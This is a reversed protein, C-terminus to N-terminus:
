APAVPQGEDAASGEFRLALGTLDDSQPVGRAFAAISASVGAILAGPGTAALEALRAELRATGFVEGSASFAETVGDTAFVIWDGPALRLTLSGFRATEFLGLAPGMPEVKTIRGSRSLLYVEEHGASAIEAAGTRADVIAFALTVFMAEANDECLAANAAALIDAAGGGARAVTRLVTRAIAMFLAAPVGKGSVDGVAIALRRDDLAFRDHFDGGVHRAPVMAAALSLGPLPQCPAGDPLMASQIEAATRMEIALARKTTIETAMREFVTAFHAFRTAQHRLADLMAPEFSGEALAEAARTLTALTSNQNQLRRGLDAIIAMATEPSAALHRRVVAQDIRLLRAARTVRVTATRPTAAFAAIEGVLEGPGIVAVTVPGAGEEVEVALTGDLVLCAWSGADGQAFLTTGAAAREVPCSAAIRRLDPDPIQAFSAAGRLLRVLEGADPGDADPLDADPADPPNNM